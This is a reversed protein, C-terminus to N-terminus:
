FFALGNKEKGMELDYLWNILKNGKSKGHSYSLDEQAYKFFDNLWGEGKGWEGGMEAAGYM